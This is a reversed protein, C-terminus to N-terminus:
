PEGEGEFARILDEDTEDFDRAIWVQGKWLGPTLRAQSRTVDMRPGHDDTLGLLYDTSVDLTQALRRLTASALGGFPVRGKELQSLHKQSMGVLRALDQQSYHRIQRALSLRLGLDLEM